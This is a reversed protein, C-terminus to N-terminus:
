QIEWNPKRKETFALLGERADDTKRAIASVKTSQKIQQLVQGQLLDNLHKKTIKLASHSGSLISNVWEQKTSELRDEPIVRHFLGQTAAEQATIPQGSLLLHSATSVNTRYCLLPCVVAAVIGRKPEPLSISSHDAAVVLDCAFVLGTGGALAPGSLVALTPISLSFINSVLEAFVTADSQLEQEPMVASRHDQMENLDMGACFVRGEAQLVLLRISDDKGIAVVFENIEQIFTRTLANRKEPRNLTLFAVNNHIQTKVFEAM